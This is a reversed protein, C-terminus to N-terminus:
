VDVFNGAIKGRQGLAEDLEPGREPVGGSRQSLDAGGGGVAQDIGQGADTPLEVLQTGLGQADGVRSPHRRGRLRFAQLSKSGSSVAIPAARRSRARRSASSCACCLAM